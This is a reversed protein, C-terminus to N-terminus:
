ERADDKLRFSVAVLGRKNLMESRSGEFSLMARYMVVYTAEDINGAVVVASSKRYRLLFTKLHDRM